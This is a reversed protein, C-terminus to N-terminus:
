SFFLDVTECNSLYSELIQVIDLIQELPQSSPWVRTPVLGCWRLPLVAYAVRVGSSCGALNTWKSVIASTRGSSGTARALAMASLSVAVDIGPSSGPAGIPRFPIGAGAESDPRPTHRYPMTHRSICSPIYGMSTPVPGTSTIKTEQAPTIWLKQRLAFTGPQHGRQDRVKKKRILDRVCFPLWGWM